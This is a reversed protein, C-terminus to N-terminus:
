CRPFPPRGQPVKVTVATGGAITMRRGADANGRALRGSEAEVSPCPDTSKGTCDAEGTQVAECVNRAGGRVREVVGAVTKSVVAVIEIGPEFLAPVAVEFAASRDTV